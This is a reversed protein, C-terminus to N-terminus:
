NFLIQTEFQASNVSEIGNGFDVFTTRSKYLLIMNSNIKFSLDYGYVTSPTKDFNFPNEVNNQMYFLKAMKLRPIISTNVDISGNLSRNSDDIYDELNDNWQEGTLDQYGIGITLLSYINAYIETYIGSMKGYRYLQSERTIIKANDYDYAVRTV